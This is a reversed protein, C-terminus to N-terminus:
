GLSKTMWSLVRSEGHFALPEVKYMNKWDPGYTVRNLYWPASLLARFGANTIQEM